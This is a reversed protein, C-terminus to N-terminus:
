AKCRRVPVHYVNGFLSVGLENPGAGHFYCNPERLGALGLGEVDGRKEACLAAQQGRPSPNVPPQGL